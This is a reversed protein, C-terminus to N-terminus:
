KKKTTTKKDDKANPNRYNTDITAGLTTIMDKASQANSGTPSLELYKQLAEVTGPPATTKGTATDTTAKGVLYLAYQYYADAYNVDMAKKFAAAAQESQGSNTLVAGLNFYAKGAAPPDLQAVKGAEAEAEPFKKALALARAFNSHVAPDEPKLTIAKNYAETAKAMEADFEPGSKTGAMDVHAEALNAWVAPQTPGLESAKEFAAIAEPYQKADKAAMGATFAEQLAKNAKMAAEQQKIQKEVLDKQESTLGRALEDTMKGSEAAKQMAAQRAQGEAQRKRLDFDAKSPDGM